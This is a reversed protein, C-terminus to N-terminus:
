NFLQAIWGFIKLRSLDNWTSFVILTGVIAFGIRFGIEQAKESLPKGRVAEITYFLIHGGDLMPIPFLNILGLSISLFVSLWVLEFLDRKAAEGAFLAIGIPGSLGDASREGMIMQGFTALSDWTVHGIQKTAEWPAAYLAIDVHKTGAGLEVGLTGLRKNHTAKEGLTIPLAMEHGARKIVARVEQGPRTKVFNQVATPTALREGDMSVLIDQPAIGAKQAASGEMVQGILVEGTPVRAGMVAYLLTLVVLAYLYNAAPGAFSIAMRQWVTKHFLTSAKDEESMAEISAFDPQSAANADSFFRVYGGLPVYSVKWRTGRKDHWGFIEPGFGISFVDVRVGNRLAVLYHGMEHVFVLLSLIIIFPFVNYFFSALFDIM